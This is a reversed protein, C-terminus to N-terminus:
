NEAKESDSKLIGTLFILIDNSENEITAKMNRNKIIKINSHCLPNENRSDCFKSIVNEEDATIAYNTKYFHLIRRKEYFSEKVGEKKYALNSTISDFYSKMYAQFTLYNEKKHEITSLYKIFIISEELAKDYIEVSSLETKIINKVWDSIIYSKIYQYLKSDKEKLIDLLKINKFNRYLLYRMSLFSDYVTWEYNEYKIYLNYLFKKILEMSHMNLISALLRKPDHILIDNNKSILRILNPYTETEKFWDLNKFIITNYIQRRYFKVNPNNFYKDIIDYYTEYNIGENETKEILKEFFCKLAERSFDDNLEEEIVAEDELSVSNIDEYIFESSRLHTKKRNINLNFEHILNSYEYTLRNELKNMEFDHKNFFIYLDDVYRTMKFDETNLISKIARYYKNDIIDLYVITALYSSPIGGDIQPFRNNGIYNIFEKFYMQEKENISISNKLLNTLKNININEYFDKIDIKLFTDYKVSLEELEKTFEFYQEKYHLQKKEYNGAYRVSINNNRKMKYSNCIEMVMANYYIYLIPSILVKNRFTGDDKIEYNECIIYNNEETLFKGNLINKKFYEIDTISDYNRSYKIPYLQFYFNGFKQSYNKILECIENWTEYKIRYM